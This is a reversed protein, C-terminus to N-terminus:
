VYDSALPSLAVSLLSRPPTRLMPAPPKLLLSAIQGTQRKTRAPHELPDPALGILVGVDPALGIMVGADAGGGDAAGAGLAGTHM